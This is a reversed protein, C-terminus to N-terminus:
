PHDRLFATVRDAVLYWLAEPPTDFALVIRENVAFRAVKAHDFGLEVIDAM